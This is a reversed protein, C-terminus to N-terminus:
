CYLVTAVGTGTSRTNNGCYRAPMPYQLALISGWWNPITTPCYQSVMQANHLTYQHVFSLWVPLCPLVGATFGARWAPARKIMNSVLGLFNEVWSFLKGFLIDTIQWGYMIHILAKSTRWSTNSGGSSPPPVVWDACVCKPGKVSPNQVFFGWLHVTHVLRFAYM